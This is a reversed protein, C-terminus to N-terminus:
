TERGIGIAVRTRFQGWRFKEAAPSLWRRRQAAEKGGGSRSLIFTHTADGCAGTAFSGFAGM